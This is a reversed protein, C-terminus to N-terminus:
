VESYTKIEITAALLDNIRQELNQICPEQAHERFADMLSFAEDFVLANSRETSM